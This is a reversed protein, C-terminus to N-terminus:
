EPENKKEDEPNKDHNLRKKCNTILRSIFPRIAGTTGQPGFAHLIAVFFVVSFFLSFTITSLMLIAMKDFFTVVCPFLFISSGMTTVAGGIVSIGMEKLSEEVRSFKDDFPSHAYHSAIHVTYDVSFGVIIVLSFSEIMGFEWGQLVMLAMVSVLIGAISLIAIFSVIVNLSITTLVIFAFLISIFIGQYASSFLYEELKMYAWGGNATQFGQNFGSGAEINNLQMQAEWKNYHPESESMPLFPKTKTIAKIMVYKLEDKFLGIHLKSVVAKNAADNYFLRLETLFENQPLPYSKGKATLWTEFDDVWCEVNGDFVFEKTRLDACIAKLKVQNAMPSLDFNPDWIVEGLSFPDWKDASTRDVNKVGWVLYAMLADDNKGKIFTDKALNQGKIIYHDDPLFQEQKSLPKMQSAEYLAFAIWIGILILITFKGKKM